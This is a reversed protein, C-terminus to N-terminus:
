SMGSVMIRGMGFGTLFGWACCIVYYTTLDIGLRAQYSNLWIDARELWGLERHGSLFNWLGDSM